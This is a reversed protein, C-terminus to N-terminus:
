EAAIPMMEDEREAIIHLIARPPMQDELFDPIVLLLRERLEELTAGSSNLGRISTEATYWVQAEDDWKAWVHFTPQM